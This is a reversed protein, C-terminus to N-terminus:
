SRWASCAWPSRWRCRPRCDRPCSACWSAWPSCCRRSGPSTSAWHAWSSCCSVSPSRWSPSRARWATSRASCPRSRTPSAPPSSSSAGSSPTRLGTAFVVAQGTGLGREDGHVGPEAHQHHGPGRRSLPRGDQASRRIRRHPRHQHDVDRVPSHPPRRRQDRRGRRPRDRRRAGPRSGRRDHGRRRSRGQRERPVLKQLAETAKEARYEQIFGIVANLVVVGMIAIAVNLNDQRSSGSSLLAAIFVLLAGVELM